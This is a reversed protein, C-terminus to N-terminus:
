LDNLEKFQKLLDQTLKALPRKNIEDKSLYNAYIMRQLEDESVLGTKVLRQKLEEYFTPNYIQSKLYIEDIVDSHQNHVEKLYFREHFTMTQGSNVDIELNSGGKNCRGRTQFNKIAELTAKFRFSDSISTEYPHHYSNDLYPDEDSKFQNCHSCTPLLNFPSLSLYPYISKPYIHDFHCLLKGSKSVSIIFQANCYPCAKLDLVDYFWIATTSQRFNEYRMRKVFELNFEDDDISGFEAIISIIEIPNAKVIRDFQHITKNVLQLQDGTLHPVWEGLTSLPSRLRGNKIKDLFKVLDSAELEVKNM